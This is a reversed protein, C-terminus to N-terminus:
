ANPPKLHRDLISSLQGNDRLGRILSHETFRDSHDLLITRAVTSMGEAYIRDLRHASTYHIEAHSYTPSKLFRPLNMLRRETSRSTYVRMMQRPWRYERIRARSLPSILTQPVFSLVSDAGLLHGFLLAAYGGSSNGITVLRTNDVGALIRELSTAAERLTQGHGAIGRHYWCQELDRVFVTNTQFPAMAKHFEYPPMGMGLALGGFCVAITSSDQGLDIELSTKDLEQDTM